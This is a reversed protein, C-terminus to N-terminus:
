SGATRIKGHSTGTGIPFHHYLIKCSAVILKKWMTGIEDDCGDERECTFYKRLIDSYLKSTFLHAPSFSIKCSKRTRILANQPRHILGFAVVPKVSMERSICILFGSFTLSFFVHWFSLSFTHTQDNLLWTYTVFTSLQMFAYVFRKLVFWKGDKTLWWDASVKLQHEITPFPPLPNRWPVSSAFLQSPHLHVHLHPLMPPNSASCFWHDAISTSFFM